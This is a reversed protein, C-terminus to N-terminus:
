FHFFGFFKLSGILYESCEDVDREHNLEKLIGYVWLQKVVPTTDDAIDMVAHFPPKDVMISVKYPTFKGSDKADADSANTCAVLFM